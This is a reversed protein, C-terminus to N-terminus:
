PVALGHLNIGVQLGSIAFISLADLNPGATAPANFIVTVNCSGGPAVGFNGCSSPGATFIAPKTTTFVLPGLPKTGRLRAAGRIRM